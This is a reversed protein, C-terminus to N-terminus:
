YPLISNYDVTYRPFVTMLFALPCRREFFRFRNFMGFMNNMENCVPLRRQARDNEATRDVADKAFRHDDGELVAGAQEWLIVPRQRQEAVKAVAPSRRRSDPVLIQVSGGETLHVLQLAM